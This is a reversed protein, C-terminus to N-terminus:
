PLQELKFEVKYLNGGIPRYTPQGVFKFEASTQTRPNKWNFKTAGGDVTTIFFTDFYGVQTSTLNLELDHFRSGATFRKRTKAPGADMETRLVLDPLTEVAGAILPIQPLTEPWDAM